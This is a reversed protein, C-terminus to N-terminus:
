VGVSSLSLHVPPAAAQVDPARVTAMGHVTAVGIKRVPPPTSDSGFRYRRLFLELENGPSDFCRRLPLSSLSRETSAPIAPVSAHVVPFLATTVVSLASPSRASSAGM